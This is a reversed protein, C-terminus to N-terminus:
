LSKLFSAENNFTNTEHQIHRSTATNLNKVTVCSVCVFKENTNKKMQEFKM